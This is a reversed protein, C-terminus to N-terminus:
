VIVLPDVNGVSTIGRIRINSAAGPQGNNVVTVGSAQGQLLSEVTGSPIQKMNQVDVVAVSGTIDKKRQSSYGTVIIENMSTSSEVLSVNLTGSGIAVEQEAFGISTVVLTTSNAPVNISFSGDAGTSTALNTGKVAVTAGIVPQNNSSTIRGTVTRQAFAITAFLLLCTTLWSRYVTLKVPMLLRKTKTPTYFIEFHGSLNLM